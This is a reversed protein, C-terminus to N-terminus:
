PGLLWAKPIDYKYQELFERGSYPGLLLSSRLFLLMPILQLNDRIEICTCITLRLLQYM